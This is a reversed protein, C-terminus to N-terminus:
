ASSTSGAVRSRVARGVRAPQRRARAVTQQALEEAIAGPPLQDFGATFSRGGAWIDALVDAVRRVYPEWLWTREADSLAYRETRWILPVRADTVRNYNVRFRLRKAVEVGPWVLRSKAGWYLRLYQYHYYILPRGSIKLEGNRRELAYPTGVVEDGGEWMSTMNWLGAIGGPHELAHVGSFREPWEDLYKQDGFKGDELRQYCWDVCQDRWARLVRIGEDTRRFALLQTCYRGVIDAWYERRPPFGYPTILVSEDGLEAFLPAPDHFFMLDSDLYTVMHLDPERELAHLCAVPKVTWAYETPTRARKATYLEPDFAEVDAVDVTDLYPLALRDLLPKGAPDMCVVRLRFDACVAALSHYLVLARPVYPFSAITCFQNDTM